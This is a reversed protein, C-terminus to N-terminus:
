IRLVSILIGFVMYRGGRGWFVKFFNSKTRKHSCISIIEVLRTEWFRKNFTQKWSQRTRLLVSQGIYLAGSSINHLICHVVPLRRKTSEFYQNTYNRCSLFQAFKGKINEVNTLLTDSVYVHQIFSYIIQNSFRQHYLDCSFIWYRSLYSRLETNLSTCQEISELITVVLCM